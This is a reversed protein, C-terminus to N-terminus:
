YKPLEFGTLVEGFIDKEYGKCMNHQCFLHWGLLGSAVLSRPKKAGM